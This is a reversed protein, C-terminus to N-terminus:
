ILLKRVLDYLSKVASMEILHLQHAERLKVQRNMRQRDAIFIQLQNLQEKIEVASSADRVSM